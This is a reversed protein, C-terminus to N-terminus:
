NQSFHFGPLNKTYVFSSQGNKHEVQVFAQHKKIEKNVAKIWSLVRKRDEFFSLNMQFNTLEERGNKYFLALKQIGWEKKIGIKKLSTFSVQKRNSVGCSIILTDGKVNLHRIGKGFGLAKPLLIFLVILEAALLFIDFLSFSSKMLGTVLAVLDVILVIYTISLYIKKQFTRAEKWTCEPMGFEDFNLRKMAINKNGHIYISKLM